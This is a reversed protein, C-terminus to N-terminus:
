YTFRSIFSDLTNHDKVEDHPILLYKWEKGGHALLHQSANKCWASGAKAKETVEESWGGDKEKHQASKTEIMLVYNNTEAIFDPLYAPHETGSRYYLNFQGVAPKLWKLSHRELLSSFRRETDSDFKQLPYLCKYFGGFILQKIKSKEKITTTYPVVDQDQAVTYSCNKLPTFGSAVKVEYETVDEYFHNNLQAHILSAIKDSQNQLINEADIEDNVELLCNVAQSALRYLLESCEDYSIDDYNFLRKLIYNEKIPEYVGSDGDGLETQSNDHLNHQVLTNDQSKLGKIVSVDLDFDHYGTTVDGKPTVFVRPIDITGSLVANTAKDVVSTVDLTIEGKLLEPQTGALEKTVAAVIEKQIDEKQLASTTPVQDPKNQYKKIVEFTVQAVKREGETVFLPKTPTSSPYDKTGTRTSTDNGSNFLSDLNSTVTVSTTKVEDKPRDLIVQKLRLPNEPNNAEDVIEQFKDHAVISLRDVAEVGTRKGYPLRLGRGISQEILTRANAARLPVITYLNTVDWGEKLMNVHIVIETPEDVSEVNLLAQITEEEKNSSDVQIVKGQYRGDFVTELKELLVAAHTTDRAIVLMFPKVLKADHQHAYTVLEVKTMEHLRIGDMLKITELEEKEEATKYKSPDFNRQTVVAPEKVFGDDMARALPYDIIVNKFPAPKGSKGKGEVFPTATLELGFIPNLENIAKVGASARYRHSEDMLLVLDTLNALYSFYSDGLYESLRKIRPAKGGRVESNIKSINFVNVTVIQQDGFLDNAVQAGRQNYNDGTIVIPPEVAFESIGKFVYKSTGPTFDAILKEYITLNPALVFFNKIGYAIYLYSIFAGMLRTKGVGTALAFCMSPFDREFDELTPFESKLTNLLAEVDHKSDILNEDTAEIAKALAELSERQPARLSLRGTISNIIRKDM